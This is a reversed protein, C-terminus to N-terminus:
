PLNVYALIANYPLHTSTLLIKDFRYESQAHELNAYASKDSNSFTQINCLFHM